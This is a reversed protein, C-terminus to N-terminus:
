IRDSSCPILHKMEYELDSPILRYFWSRFFPDKQLLMPDDALDPNVEIVRGSVPSLVQHELGDKSVLSACSSGQVLEDNGHRLKLERIADLTRLYLDTVGTRVSGDNELSLWSGYGLRLYRTPCPVYVISDTSRAQRLAAQIEIYKMARSVSALLEDVTFPKPIFDIAGDYLSRVANELTSYGTTMIVPTKIKRRDMEALFQFGDLAPMMIDCLILRYRRNHLKDLAASADAATEVSYGETTCTREVAELVVPEDDVALLDVIKSM